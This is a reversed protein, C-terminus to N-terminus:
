FAPMGGGLVGAAISQMETEYVAAAKEIVRNVALLVLEEVAEKDDMLEDAIKIEVIQKNATASVKVMGGEAEADVFISNMREVNADMQQQAAQMKGMLDELM